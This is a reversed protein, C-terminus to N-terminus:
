KNALLTEVLEIDEHDDIDVSNLSSMEYYTSDRLRLTKQKMFECINLIWMCSSDAYFDPYDQTRNFLKSANIGYEHAWYSVIRDTKNKVFCLVPRHNYKSITILGDADSERYKMYAKSIDEGTRLPCTPPLVIVNEYDCGENKYYSICHEIVDKIQSKDTSLHDPRMFPVQAGAQRSVSAIKEDETSVIINKTINSSLAAEITYTILPKGSLQRLNKRPIRTSGGRAPIIIISGTSSM